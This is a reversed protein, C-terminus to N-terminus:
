RCLCWANPPRDMADNVEEYFNTADFMADPDDIPVDVPPVTAGPAPMSENRVVDDMPEMPAGIGQRGGDPVEVKKARKKSQTHTRSAEGMDARKKKEVGAERMAEYLRKRCDKNHRVGRARLRQGKRVFVYRHCGETYGFAKLTPILCRSASLPVPMLMQPDLNLILMPSQIRKLLTKIGFRSNSLRSRSQLFIRLAGDYVRFLGSLPGPAYLITMPWGRSTKTVPCLGVSSLETAGANTSSRGSNKSMGCLASGLSAYANEDKVGMCGAM